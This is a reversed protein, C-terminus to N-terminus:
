LGCASPRRLAQTHQFEGRRARHSEPVLTQLVLEVVECLQVLMLGAVQLLLQGGDLLLHGVLGVLSGPVDLDPCLSTLTVACM